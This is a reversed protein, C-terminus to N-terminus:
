YPEDDDDYDYEDDDEPPMDMNVMSTLSPPPRRPRSPFMWETAADRPLEGYRNYAERLREMAYERDDHWSTIAKPGTPTERFVAYVKNGRYSSVVSYMTACGAHAEYTMRLSPPAM